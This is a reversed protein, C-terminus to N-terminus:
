SPFGISEHIVQTVYGSQSCIVVVDDGLSDFGSQSLGECRDIGGATPTLKKGVSRTRTKQDMILRTCLCLRMDKSRQVDSHRRATLLPPNLNM